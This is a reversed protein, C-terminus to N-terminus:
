SHKLKCISVEDIIDIMYHAEQETVLGHGDIRAEKELRVLIPRIERMLLVNDSVTKSHHPLTPDENIHESLDHDDDGNDNGNGDDNGSGDKTVITALYFKRSKWTHVIAKWEKAVEDFYFMAFVRDGAIGSKNTLISKTVKWGSTKSNSIAIGNCWFGEKPKEKTWNRLGAMVAVYQNNVKFVDNFDLSQYGWDKGIIVPQSLPIFRTGNNKAYCPNETSPVGKMGRAGYFLDIGNNKLVASYTAYKMYGDGSPGLASTGGLFYFPGLKNISTFHNLMFQGYKKESTKDETFLHWLGTTNDYYRFPDEGQREIGGKGLLKLEKKFKWNIYTHISYVKEGNKIKVATTDWIIDGNPLVLPNGHERYELVGTPVEVILDDEGYLMFDINLIDTNTHIKM